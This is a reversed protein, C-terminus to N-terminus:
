PLEENVFMWLIPWLLFFLVHGQWTYKRGAIITAILPIAFYIAICVLWTM